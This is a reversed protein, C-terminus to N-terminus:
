TRTRESDLLDKATLGAQMITRTRQEVYNDLEIPNYSQSHNTSVSVFGGDGTTIEISRFKCGSYSGWLFKDAIVRRLEDIEKITYARNTM